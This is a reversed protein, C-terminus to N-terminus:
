YDTFKKVGSETKLRIVMLRGHTRIVKTIKEVYKIKISIDVGDKKNKIDNNEHINAYATDNNGGFFIAYAGVYVM